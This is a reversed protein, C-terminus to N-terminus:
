NVNSDDWSGEWMLGAVPHQWSISPLNQPSSTVAAGCFWPAPGPRRGLLSWRHNSTLAHESLGRMPGNLDPGLAEARSKASLGSSLLM